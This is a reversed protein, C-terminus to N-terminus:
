VVGPILEFRIYHKNDGLRLMRDWPICAGGLGGTGGLWIRQLASWDLWYYAEIGPATGEVIVGAIAGADGMRGLFEVQHRRSKMADFIPFGRPNATMKAECFFGLGSRRVAGIFDCVGVTARAGGAGVIFGPNTKVLTVVGLQQSALIASECPRGRNAHTLAM